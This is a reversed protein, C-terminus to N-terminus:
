EKTKDPNPREPQNNPPQGPKPQNPKSQNPKSQNPKPQNPKSQDPKPQPAKPLKPKSSSPDAPPPNEGADDGVFRLAVHQRYFAVDIQKKEVNATIRYPSMSTSGAKQFLVRGNRTDLILSAYNRQVGTQGPRFRQYKRIAFVLIPLRRPQNLDVAQQSVDQQWIRKGTGSEVAYVPGNVSTGGTISNMILMNGANAQTRNMLVIYRGPMRRVSFSILQKEPDIASSMLPQGDRIRLVHLQGRPEVIALEEDDILFHKAGTDFTRTWEVENTALNILRAIPKENSKWCLLRTGSFGLRQEGAPLEVNGQLEGDLARFLTAYRSGRSIVGVVQEDGFLTSGRSIGSRTWLPRGTLSDAVYLETESQYCVFQDNIPGIQGLPRGRPDSFMMQRKGRVIMQRVVPRSRDTGGGEFLARKWLFRPTKNATLMDMVVFQGGLNVVLLSDCIQVVCGTGPIGLRSGAITLPVKWQERGDGDFAIMHQRRSGLRFTWGPLPGRSGKVAMPYEAGISTGQSGIEAHMEADPWPIQSAALERFRPDSRLREAHERGTRGSCRVDAWRTELQRAAHEIAEFSRGDLLVDGIQVTASAAVDIQESDALRRLQFLLRTRDETADLRKIMENRVQDAVPFDSFSGALLELDAVGESELSEDLRERLQRQIWLRLEPEADNYIQAVRPRIWRDMRVSQEAAFPILDQEDPSSAALQLYQQFAARFQGAAHLGSAMVRHFQFQDAPDTLLSELDKSYQVYSVFDSRLGGMWASTLLGRSRELSQLQGSKLFAQARQEDGQTAEQAAQLRRWASRLDQLGGHEDGHQLRLEGRDVLALPADPQKTLRDAIESEVAPLPRYAVLRDVSQSFLMGRLAVLNGPIQQSRSASRVIERGNGLDIGVIEGSQLPLYYFGNSHYGRGSPVGTSTAVKWAPSGDQLRVARIHSRGVIAVAGQHVAAVYLGHGRPQRWLLRGLKLDICHLETSDRPTVLVRGDVITPVADIWRGEDEDTAVSQTTKATPARMIPLRMNTAMMKSIPEYHYGWLLQRRALDLGVIAGSTTPCIMVGDAYSPSIGSMRRFPHRDITVPPVVLSQSWDLTVTWRAPSADTQKQSLVLLRIEGNTEALCYLRNGLVLPPGLFFHGGFTRQQEEQPGGIQWLFKGSSLDFAKLTNYSNPVSRFQRGRSTTFDGQYGLDDVLFAHRGDSSLTGATMDRWARQALFLNLSHPNRSASSSGSEGPEELLKDLSRDPTVAEWVLEGTLPRVAKLSGLSRLVVLDDTVLPHCAPLTLLDAFPGTRLANLRTELDEIQRAKSPELEAFVVMPISDFSWHDDWGVSAPASTGTRAPTGRFMTWSDDVWGRLQTNEGLVKVLWEAADARNEYFPYRRGALTLHDGGSAAKLEELTQIAQPMMGARSWCIAAKLSLVSANRYARHGKRKLRQFQLAAALVDGRDLSRNGLEEVAAHGARTHFFRRAVSEIQSVDSSALATDLLRRAVLGQQLEYSDLGERPLAAILDAAALKLSVFRSPLKPDPNFFADEAADLTDILQQLRRLGTVYEKNELLERCALLHQTLSRNPMFLGQQAPPSVGTRPRMVGPAVIVQGVVASAQVAIWMGVILGTRGRLFWAPQRKPIM